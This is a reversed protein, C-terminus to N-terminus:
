LWVVFWACRGDCLRTGDFDVDGWQLGAIEGSRLGTHIACLFLGYHQPSHEVVAQLFGPVEDTTLPQIEEHVRGSQRYHKGMRAAPNDQVLKHEKAHNFLVGFAALVIRISDKAFDQKTLEAILEEVDARTIEDLRRSGLGPLIYLRFSSDYSNVTSYRLGTDMYVRKFTRYYEELTPAPTKKEPLFQGGLKLRADLLEKSKEAAKKSGIMRSTRKGQHCILLWWVGSGKVKERVKVGM